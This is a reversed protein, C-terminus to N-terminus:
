WMALPLQFANEGSGTKYYVIFSVIFGPLMTGPPFLQLVLFCVFQSLKEVQLATESIKEKALLNIETVLELFHIFDLFKPLSWILAVYVLIILTTTSTSNISLTYEQFTSAVHLLYMCNSIHSWIIIPTVVFLHLNLPHNPNIGLFRFNRLIVQLVKMKISYSQLHM